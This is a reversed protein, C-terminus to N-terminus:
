LWSENTFGCSPSTASRDRFWSDSVSLRNRPLNLDVNAGSKAIQLYVHGVALRLGFKVGFLRQNVGRDLYFSLSLSIHQIRVKLPDGIIREVPITDIM